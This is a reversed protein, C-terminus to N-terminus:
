RRPFVIRYLMCYINNLSYKYIMFLINMQLNFHTICQPDKRLQDTLFAFQVFKIAGVVCM